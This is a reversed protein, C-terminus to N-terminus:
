SENHNRKVTKEWPSPWPYLSNLFYRVLGDKEEWSMGGEYEETDNLCFVKRGRSRLFSQIRRKALPDGIDLYAYTINVNVAAGTAIAYNVYFSTLPAIDQSSRFQAQRVRAFAEPFRDEIERMVSRRIPLPTHKIKRRVVRGLAEELLASVNMAGWESAKERSEPSGVPLLSTSFFVKSLGTVTFFDEPRTPAGFFFDDNMYIFNESLDPIHHLVSEIAHSNFTPLKAGAPFLERHDVIRIKESAEEHLWPPVQRDTVIYIHRIWPAFLAVSRLSYLLENRNEWRSRNASRRPVDCGLGQLAADKREAWAPDDGDVWTYVLDIPYNIDTVTPLELNKECDIQVPASDRDSWPNVWWGNEEIVFRVSAAYQMGYPRSKGAAIFQKCFNIEEVWPAPTFLRLLWATVGSKVTVSRQGGRVFLKVRVALHDGRVVNPLDNLLSRAAVQEVFDTRKFDDELCYLSSVANRRLVTSLAKVNEEKLRSATVVNSVPIATPPVPLIRNLFQLVKQIFFYVLRLLM